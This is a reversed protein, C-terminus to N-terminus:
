VPWRGAAHAQCAGRAQEEWCRSAGCSVTENGMRASVARACRAAARAAAGCRVDLPWACAPLSRCVPWLPPPHTLACHHAGQRPTCCGCSWLAGTPEWAPAHVWGAGAVSSPTSLTRSNSSWVNSESSRAASDGESSAQLMVLVLKAPTPPCPPARPATFGVHNRTRCRGQQEVCTAGGGHQM